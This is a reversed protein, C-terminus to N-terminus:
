RPEAHAVVAHDGRGPWLRRPDPVDPAKRRFLRAVDWGYVAPYAGATELVDSRGPEDRWQVGYALDDHHGFLVHDQSLRGLNVFLARTEATAYPDALRVPEVIKQVPAACAGALAAAALFAACFFMKVFM